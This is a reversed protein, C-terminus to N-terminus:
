VAFREKTTAKAPMHKPSVKLLLERWGGGFNFSVMSDVLLRDHNRGARRILTSPWNDRLREVLELCYKKM